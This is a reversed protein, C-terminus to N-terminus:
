AAERGRYDRYGHCILERQTATDSREAVQSSTNTRARVPSAPQDPGVAGNREGFNFATVSPATDALAPDYLLSFQSSGSSISQRRTLIAEVVVGSPVSITQLTRSTPALGSLDQIPANWLFEDGFQSFLRNLGTARYISGIRRYADYGTADALLNAATLSSDFGADIAGSTSSMILFVHYWTSNTLTLGSPFGGNGTGVVWNADIRKTIATTLTMNRNITSANDPVCGGVGIDIGNVADTANNALKLGHLHLPPFNDVGQARQYYLCYWNGSGLSLMLARDDAQTQISKFGPLQLSTANHTLLLSGSFIVHIQTGAAVTGFGTITTTGTIFVSNGLVTSLNTVSASAITAQHAARIQKASMLINGAYTQDANYNNSANFVTAGSVTGGALPLHGVLRYDNVLKIDNNSFVKNRDTNTDAPSGAALGTQTFTTSHPNGTDALHASVSAAATTKNIHQFVTGDHVLYAIGGAQLEGVAPDTTGDAQKVPTTGLGPLECTVPGGTCSANIKVWIALGAFYSAPAPAVTTVIADATGTDTGYRSSTQLSTVLTLNAALKAFIDPHLTHFEVVKDLLRGDSRLMLDINAKFADTLAKLAAFEDDLGSTDVTSRGGVLNAEDDSFDTGPIYPTMTQYPM